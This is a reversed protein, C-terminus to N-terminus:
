GGADASLILLHDSDALPTLPDSVFADGNLNVAFAPHLAGGNIFEALRPCRAALTDLAQGLTAADVHLDDVGARERPVGYFEIYM